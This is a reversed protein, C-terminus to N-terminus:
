QDLTSYLLSVSYLIIYTLLIHVLYAVIIILYLETPSSFSNSFTVSVLGVSSSLNFTDMVVIDM